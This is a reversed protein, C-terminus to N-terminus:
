RRMGAPPKISSGLPITSRTEYEAGSPKLHSEMIALEQVEFPFDVEGLVRTKQELERLEGAEFRALTVHLSPPMGTQSPAPRSGAKPPPLGRVGAWAKELKQKLAALEVPAEGELWIMRAPVAPPALIVRSFRVVFARGLRHRKLAATLVELEADELYVPPVLTIHWNEPKLWRIPLWRWQTTIEAVRAKLEPPLDIAIFIRRKM